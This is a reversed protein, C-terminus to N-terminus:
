GPRPSTPATSSATTGAASSSRTTRTTACTGAARRRASTRRGRHGEQEDDPRRETPTTSRCARRRRTSTSTATASRSRSTSRSGPTAAAVPVRAIAIHRQLVPSYMFSTAYGVQAGDDDYVYMEEQVPRTTRPRSSGPRTTSATGTAGTSSSARPGSARRGTPWSVASRTAASSRAITTEVGESCGASASSPPRRRPRRRDVRLPQQRLRRRAAAPGGRDPDHVAGPARVAPRRRRPRRGCRTGYRSRTTPRSGVEYGLDGTYGTRSVTVKRGAIKAKHARLLRAGDVSPTSAPSSRRSAPGPARARGM